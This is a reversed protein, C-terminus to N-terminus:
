RALMVESGSEVGLWVAFCGADRMTKLLERDVMDVRTGCDWKLHLKRANLEECIKVVRNRDVSFADDYFTVQDVGYKDHVLQMEDVVNKPAECVTDEVSCASLAVFTM